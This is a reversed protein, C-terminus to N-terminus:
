KALNCNLYSPDNTVEKSVWSPFAVLEKSLELNTYEIEAIVFDYTDFFDIEWIAQEYEILFREKSITPYDLREIANFLEKPFQEEIEVRVIPNDTSKKVTWKCDVKGDEYSDKVVRISSEPTNSVYISKIRRSAFSLSKAEERTLTCLFKREIELVM